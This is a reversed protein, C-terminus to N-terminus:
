LWSVSQPGCANLHFIRNSRALFDCIDDTTLQHVAAALCFKLLRILAKEVTQANKIFFTPLKPIIFLLTPSSPSFNFFIFSIQQISFKGYLHLVKPWTRSRLPNLFQDIVQLIM